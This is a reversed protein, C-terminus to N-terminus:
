LFPNRFNPQTPQRYRRTKYWVNALSLAIGAVAAILLWHLVPMDTSNRLGDLPSKLFVLADFGALLLALIIRTAFYTPFSSARRSTDEAMSSPLASM